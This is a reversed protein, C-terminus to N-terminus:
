SLRLPLTGSARGGHDDDDDRSVQRSHRAAIGVIKHHARAVVVLPEVVQELDHQDAVAARALSADDLAESGAREDFTM